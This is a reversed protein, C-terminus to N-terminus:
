KWRYYKFFHKKLIVQQQLKNKLEIANGKSEVTLLIEQNLQKYIKKTNKKKMSALIFKISLSARATQKAIFAPIEKIKKNKKKQKKNKIQHLKFTPISNLISLKVVQKLQKKCNKQLNKTAKFLINESTKKDGNLMLHNIIKNKIEKKQM